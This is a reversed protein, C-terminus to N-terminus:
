LLLVYINEGPRLCFPRVRLTKKKREASNGFTRRIRENLGLVRPRWRGLTCFSDLGCGAVARVAGAVARRPRRSAKTTSFIPFGAVCPLGSTVSAKHALCGWTGGICGADGWIRPNRRARREIRGAVYGGGMRHSGVRRRRLRLRGMALRLPFFGVAQPFVSSPCFITEM